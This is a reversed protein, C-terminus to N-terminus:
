EKAGEEPKEADDQVAEAPAASEKKFYDDLDDDLRKQVM